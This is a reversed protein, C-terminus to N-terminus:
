DMVEGGPADYADSWTQELEAWDREDLKDTWEEVEMEDDKNENIVVWAYDHSNTAEQMAAYYWASASNDPWTNMRRESLLYDEHPERGLTRNVITCAEARTINDLPRFTGDPMGEILGYEVAATLYDVFWEGGQVDSFWGEYSYEEAAYDFFSVAIKTFESRTIPANPRFTGDLYGDLIGMRSLTSVANNYWADPAVDSYSNTQSWYTERAEDTLLRFFITAVEARSIDAEPRITGDTFGILYAVHDETNLDEPEDDRNPRSPRHSPRSGGNDDDDDDDYPPTVPQSEKEYVLVFPSFSDTTFKVYWRGDIETTTLDIPEYKQATSLDDSGTTDERDMDVYHVVHFTSDDAADNPVPWYITLSDGEGMTVVANGNKTDVLDLYFAQYYANSLSIGKARVESIADAGMSDNFGPNNSIQDVLLQVRDTNESTPIHVESDNVFYTVDKDAVATIGNSLSDATAESVIETVTEENTTSRVTLTGTGIDVNCTISEAGITLKAQVLDQNLPGGDITMRYTAGVVQETMTIDDTTVTEDIEEGDYKGNGNKDTFFRLSVPNNSVESMSYVYQEVQNNEFRSYVGLYTLKWTREVGNVSYTFTLIDDLRAAEEDEDSGTTDTYHADIWENVGKPLVLHYGPEPLGNPTTGGIVEGDGGVMGSYNSGGTYIVIDAPTITVDGTWVTETDTDTGDEGGNVTVDNAISGNKVDQETVTYTYIITATEGAELGKIHWVYGNRVDLTQEVGGVEVSTVGHKIGWLSDSVTANLKETGTNKVTITYTLKDDEDVTFFTNPVEGDNIATLAKEVSMDPNTVKVEETDGDNDEIDDGSVAATNKITKGADSDQVTYTYTITVENGVDLGIIHCVYGNPADLEQKAGGVMVSTVGTKPSWLSDTIVVDGLKVNGTNTVKIEYTLKDGVNVKGGETYTSGNVASLKKEISVQPNEVPNETEDSPDDGADVDGVAATNKLTLGKDDKTVTYTATFTASSGAEVSFNEFNNNKPNDAAVTANRSASKGEADIATLTDTLKLGEAKGGGDNKVTITWTLTDGVLLVTDDTIDDANVVTDDKHTISTLKKEVSVDPQASDTVKAYFKITRSEDTPIVDKVDVSTTTSPDYKTDSEIGLFWGTVDKGEETPLGKLTIFTAYTAPNKWQMMNFGGSELADDSTTGDTGKGIIYVVNDSYDGTLEQTDKYYKVNYKTYLHIVVDPDSRYEAVNDITYTGDKNDRVNDTGNEGYSQYSRIGQLLYTDDDTVDVKIDVCDYGPNDDDDTPEFYDFDCTVTGDASVETSWNNYDTNKTDRSLTVYKLPNNVKEGDVYVQVTVDTGNLDEGPDPNDCIVEFTVPTATAVEWESQGGAVSVCKLRITKTEDEGLALTHDPYEENYAKVYEENSVVLDIYYYGFDGENEWQIDEATPPTFSGDLLGSIKDPHEATTVCDVKVANEDLLGDPPTILEEESPPEPPDNVFIQAINDLINQGIHVGGPVSNDIPITVEVDGSGVKAFITISEAQDHPIHTNSITDHNGVIHSNVVRYYEHDGVWQNNWYNPNTHGPKDDMDTGNVQIRVSEMDVDSATAVTGNAANYIELFRDIMDNDPNMVQYRTGGWESSTKQAYVVKDETVEEFPLFPEGGTPEEAWNTFVYETNPFTPDEPMNELGLPQGNPVFEVDYLQWTTSQGGPETYFAVIRESQDVSEIEYTDFDVKTYYLDGSYVRQTGETGDSLRYPIEIYRINNPGGAGGYNSLGTVNEYYMINDAGTPVRDLPWNKSEGYEEVFHLKVGQQGLIETNADVDIGSDHLLKLLSVETIRYYILSEHEIPDDVTPPVFQPCLQVNVTSSDELVLGLWFKYSDAALTSDGLNGGDVSVSEIDYEEATADSLTITYEQQRSRSDHVTLTDLLNGSPKYLNVTVTRKQTGENDYDLTFCNGGSPQAAALASMPLLGICLALACIVSLIRKLNTKM